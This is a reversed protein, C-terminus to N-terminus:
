YGYAIGVTQITMQAIAHTVTNHVALLCAVHAVDTHIYAHNIDGVDNAVLTVAYLNETGLQGYGL